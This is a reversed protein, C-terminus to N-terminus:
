GGGRQMFLDFYRMFAQRQVDDVATFRYQVAMRPMRMLAIQRAPLPQWRLALQGDGIRIRAQGPAPLELPHDRVAGPLCRLWDVESSGQERDFEDPYHGQM